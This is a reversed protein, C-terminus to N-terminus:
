LISPNFDRPFSPLLIKSTTWPSLTYLCGDSFRGSLPVVNRWVFLQAFSQGATLRGFVRRSRNLGRSPSIWGLGVISNDALPLLPLPPGYMSWVVSPSPTGAAIGAASRRYWTSPAPHERSAGALHHSERNSEPSSLISPRFVPNAAFFSRTPPLHQHSTLQFFSRCACLLCVPASSAFSTTASKRGSQKPPSASGRQPFQHARPSGAESSPSLNEL